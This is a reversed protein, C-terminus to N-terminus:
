WHQWEPWRVDCSVIAEHCHSQRATLGKVELILWNWILGQLRVLFINDCVLTFIKAKWRKSLHLHNNSNIRVVESICKERFPRSFASKSSPLSLASFRSLRKSMERHATTISTKTSREWRSSHTQFAAVECRHLAAERKAIVELTSSVVFTNERQRLLRHARSTRSILIM